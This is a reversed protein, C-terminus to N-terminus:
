AKSPIAPNFVPQFAWRSHGHPCLFEVHPIASLDGIPATFTAMEEMHTNQLEDALQRILAQWKFTGRMILNSSTINFSGALLM